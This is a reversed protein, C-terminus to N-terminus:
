VPPEFSVGVGTHNRWAIRCNRLRRGTDFSLDFETPLDACSSLQLGAGQASLDRVVCPVSAGSRAVVKAGKFVRMRPFRRREVM